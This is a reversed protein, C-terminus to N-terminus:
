MGNYESCHFCIWVGSAGYDALTDAGTEEPDNEEGCHECIWVEGEDDM